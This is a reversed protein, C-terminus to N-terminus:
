ARRGALSAFGVALIALPFATVGHAFLLHDLDVLPCVLNQVIFATCAAAAGIWTARTRDSPDRSFVFFMAAVALGYMSGAAGCMLHQALPAGHDTHMGPWPALALASPLLLAAFMWREGPGPRSADRLATRGALAAGLALPAALAGFLVGMEAGLDPRLGMMAWWLGASAFVGLALAAHRRPTPLAALRERASEPRDVTAARTDALLRELTAPPLEPAAVRRPGPPMGPTPNPNM